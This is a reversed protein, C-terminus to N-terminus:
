LTVERSNESLRDAYTRACPTPGEPSLLRAGYKDPGNLFAIPYCRARDLSGWDLLSGFNLIALGHRQLEALPQVSNGVAAGVASSQLFPIPLLVTGDVVTEDFITMPRRPMIM